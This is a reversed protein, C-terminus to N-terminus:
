DDKLRSLSELLVKDAEYDSEVIVAPPTKLAGEIEPKQAAIDDQILTLYDNVLRKMQEELRDIDLRASIDKAFELLRDRFAKHDNRSQHLLKSYEDFGSTTISIEPEDEAPGNFVFARSISADSLRENFQTIDQLMEMEAQRYVANFVTSVEITLFQEINSKILAEKKVLFRKDQADSVTIMGKLHDYLQLEFRRSIFALLVGIEQHLPSELRFASFDALDRLLSQRASEIRTRELDANEYQRINSNINSALQRWAEKLSQIQVSMSLQDTIDFINKKAEEFDEDHSELAQKSSVPFIMNTIGLSILADSMYDIVKEKDAENKMLDVANIIFIIPFDEGKISQVYKLFTEDSRSFVHNYYSVYIILDSGSIINRTEKTHRQNISNIGPSDVLTYKETIENELSVYAKHIFTADEDSSVRSILADTGIDKTTGLDAKYEGYKNLIGDLFPKYTEPVNSREKKIWKFYDEVYDYHLNSLMGLTDTLESENKYTLASSPADNIETITATTPNPSMALHGENMLANIFTTKGASFGGFVSINAKGEEIRALKEKIITHFDSYRENDEILAALKHYFGLDEDDAGKFKYHGADGAAQPLRVSGGELEVAETLNLKEIEEDLHIFFHRYSKTEISDILSLLTLIEEFRGLADKLAEEEQASGTGSKVLNQMHSQVKGSVDNVISAKLKDMYNLIFQNNLHGIEEKILLDENFEYKFPEGTLGLSGFLSNIPANVETKFVADFKERIDDVAERLMAEEKKKKGFLGPVKVEGALINLYHTIAEKVEHPFIYSDRVIKRVAEKVHSNLTADDSHLAEVKVKEIEGNLFRIHSKVAEVDEIDVDEGPIRLADLAASLYEVQEGEITGTIREFYAELLHQRDAERSHIFAKLKDVENHECPYISTTFIDDPAINWDKLTNKIRSLFTDMSLEDDDHKDVQNIILTLPINMVSLEKLLSMNHESEVHNYEVTFFIHDSNLLFRNTSERHSDTNSDVGPTDQLVTNMTFDEHAVDINIASIDIDRTNLDRLKAYDAVPVYQYQNLFAKIEDGGGIQVAVTNSTTPVPSSPLIEAELLHNILSSKGASYHGIFSFVLQEKYAKLIAHDIQSVLTENDSKLIEKKLKYLVNLTKYDENM